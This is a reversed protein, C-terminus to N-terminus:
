QITSGEYEFILEIDDLAALNLNANLPEKMDIILEWPGSLLSRFRLDGNAAPPTAMPANIGAQVSARRPRGDRNTLDYPTYDVATMSCTRLYSTGGQVITVLAGNAANAALNDGVLNVRLANIRSNCISPSFIPKDPRYTMFLAHFNGNVDRNAPDTVFRRFRDRPTYKANTVPDTVDTNLDLLKDRLSVRESKPDATRERNQEYYSHMLVMYRNIDSASRARWLDGLAGYSANIEYELARSTLYAWMMLLRFSEQAKLELDNAYLRYHLLRRVDVAGFQQVRTRESDLFQAKKILGIAASTAQAASQLAIEVEISLAEMQVMKTKILAGSNITEARSQSFQVEAEQMAILRDKAVQAGAAADQAIMSGASSALSGAAAIGPFGGSVSASAAASVAGGIASLAFGARAKKRAREDAAAIKEGTKLIFHALNDLNSTIQKARDEEIQIEQDLGDIHQKALQIRLQAAQIEGFSLDLASGKTGCTALTTTGCIEVIQRDYEATQSTIQTLLAKSSQEFERASAEAKTQDGAALNQYIKQSTYEWLQDFNNLLTTAKDFQFPVYWPLYGAPNRGATIDDYMQGVQQFLTLVGALEEPKGPAAEARALLVSLAALDGYAEVAGSRLTATAMTAQGMRHQRDAVELRARLTGSVTTLQRRLHEFPARQYPYDGLLTAINSQPSALADKSVSQSLLKLFYPDLMAQPRAPDQTHSGVEFFGTSSDVVALENALTGQTKWAETAAVLRANGFLTAYDAMVELSDLLRVGLDVDDPKALLATAYRYQACQLSVTNLCGKGDCNTEVIDFPDSNATLASAQFAGYFNAAGALYANGTSLDTGCDAGTPCQTRCTDYAAGALPNGIPPFALEPNAEAQGAIPDGSRQLDFEGDMTVDRDDFPGTLVDRYKGHIHGATTLTGTLTIQRKLARPFGPNSPSGPGGAITFSLTVGLDNRTGTIGAKRPFLLSRSPDVYGTLNMKDAQEFLNLRLSSRVAAAGPSTIQVSGAYLGSLSPTLLVDIEAHGTTSNVAIRGHQATGVKARDVKITIAADQTSVVGHPPDATLWPQDSLLRFEIPAGTNSKLSDDKMTDSPGFDLSPYKITLSAAVREPLPPPAGATAPEICRGRDSCVLAKPTTPCQRDVLCDHSCAGLSCHDGRPCDSDLACAVYTISSPAPQGCVGDACTLGAGCEESKTCAKPCARGATCPGSPADPGADGTAGGASSADGGDAGDAGAGGHSCAAALLCILGVRLWGSAGGRLDRDDRAQM